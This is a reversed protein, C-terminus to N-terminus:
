LAAFPITLEAVFAIVKLMVPVPVSTLASSGAATPPVAVTSILDVVDAPMAVTVAVEALMARSATETVIVGNGSFIIQVASSVDIVDSPVEVVIIVALTYSVDSARAIEAVFTIVKLALPSPVSRPVVILFADAPIAVTIIREDVTNPVAVTVANDMFRSLSLTTMVVKGPGAVFSTFVVSGSLMIASPTDIDVMVACAASWYLLGTVVIVPPFM